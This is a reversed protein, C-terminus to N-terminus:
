FVGRISFEGNWPDIAVTLPSRTKRFEYHLGSVVALTGGTIWSGIAIGELTEITSKRSNFDSNSCRNPANCAEKASDFKAYAIGWVVTGVLLLIGGGGAAYLDFSSRRSPVARPASPGPGVLTLPTETRPLAAPAPTAKPEEELTPIELTRQEAEIIELTASWPRRGLASARVHHVGPDIPVAVGLSDESLSGEDSAIELGPILKAAVM